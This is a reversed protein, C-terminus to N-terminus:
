NRETGHSRVQVPSCGACGVGGGGHKMAELSFFPSYGSAAMIDPLLFVGSSDQYHGVHYRYM